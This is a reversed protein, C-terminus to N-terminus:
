VNYYNHIIYKDYLKTNIISKQNPYPTQTNQHSINPLQDNIRWSIKWGYRWCGTRVDVLNCTCREMSLDQRQIYNAIEDCMLVGSVINELTM